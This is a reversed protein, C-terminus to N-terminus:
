EQRTADRMGAIRRRGHAIFAWALFLLQWFVYSFLLVMGYHPDDPSAVYPTPLRVFADVLLYGPLLLYSMGAAGALTVLTAVVVALLINKILPNM